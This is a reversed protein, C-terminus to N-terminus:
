LVLEWVDLLKYVGNIRMKIYESPGTDHIYVDTGTSPTSGVSVNYRTLFDLKVTYLQLTASQSNTGVVVASFLQERNNNDVYARGPYDEIRVESYNVGAGDGTWSQTNVIAPDAPPFGTVLLNGADAVLTSVQFYVELTYHLYGGVRFFIGANKHVPTVVADGLSTAFGVSFEGSSIPHSRMTLKQTPPM